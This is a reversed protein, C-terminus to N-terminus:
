QSKVGKFYVVVREEYGELPVFGNDTNGGRVTKRLKQKAKQRPTYGVGGTGPGLISCSV